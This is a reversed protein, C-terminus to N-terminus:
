FKANVQCIIENSYDNLLPTVGRMNFIKSILKLPKWFETNWTTNCSKRSSYELASLKLSSVRAPHKSMVISIFVLIFLGILSIVQEYKKCSEYIVYAFVPVLIIVTVAIEIINKYPLSGYFHRLPDVIWNKFYNELKLFVWLLYFDIVLTVIFIFIAKKFSHIIAFVTFVNLIVVLAGIIVDKRLIYTYLFNWFKQLLAPSM